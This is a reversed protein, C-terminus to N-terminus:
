EVGALVPKAVAPDDREEKQDSVRQAACHVRRSELTSTRRLLSISSLGFPIVLAGVALGTVMMSCVGAISGLQTASWPADHRAQQSFQGEALSTSLPGSPRVSGDDTQKQPVPGGLVAFSLVWTAALIAISAKKLTTIQYTKTKV